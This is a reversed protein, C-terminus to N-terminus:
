TEGRWSFATPLSLRFVADIGDEIRLARLPGQNGAILKTWFALLTNLERNYRKVTRERAFDAAASKNDDTMGDFVIHPEILLWLHNHAWDLRISIGERWTLEQHNGVKGVITGALKRLPRWHYAEPNTPALLDANRRHRVVALKRERVIAATLARRLLSRENTDYKQRETELTHLDFQTIDFTEFLSHVDSDEGFALVGANTRTAIVNADAREIVKRVDAIGGIDCVVRRCVTPMLTVRLANLRVVPWGGKRTPRFASSYWQQEKAFFTM